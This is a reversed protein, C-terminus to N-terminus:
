MYEKFYSKDIPGAIVTIETGEATFFPVTRYSAGPNEKCIRMAESEEYAAAWVHRETDQIVYISDM